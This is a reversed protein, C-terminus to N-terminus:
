AVNAEEGPGPGPGADPPAGEGPGGAGPEGPPLAGASAGAQDFEQVAKGPEGLGGSQVIAKLHDMEHLMLRQQVLNPLRLFQKTKRFATHTSLHIMDDDGSNRTVQQWGESRILMENEWKARRYDLGRESSFGTIGLQEMFDEYQGTDTLLNPFLGMNLADILMQQAGAKSRPQYSAAEVRVRTNSKLDSGKFDAIEIATGDETEFSIAREDSYYAQVLELKLSEHREIFRQFRKSIPEFLGEAEEGLRNLAVGATVGPPANGMIVNKVGSIDEMDQAYGARRQVMQAPMPMGPERRPQHPYKYKIVTGPKNRFAGDAVEAEEPVLWVPNVNTADNLQQFQEIKNIQDQPSLLDEVMGRFWFRGPVRYYGVHDIHFRTKLPLDGIYLPMGDMEVLFLGNSYEQTPAFQLQNVIAYGELYFPDVTRVVGHIGASLLSVLRHTYLDSTLIGGKEPIFDAKDPYLQRLLQTSFLSSEMIWPATGAKLQRCALPVTISLPSVVESWVDGQPTVDFLVEGTTPDREEIYRRTLVPQGDPGIIPQGSAGILPEESAVYRPTKSASRTTTDIFAKKFANGTTILWTAIEDYQDDEDNTSWLHKQIQEALEAADLDTESRSNPEVYCTPRNRTFFDVARQVKNQIQNIVPLPVWDEVKKPQWIRTASLYKIHQIGACYLICKSWLPEFTELTVQRVRRPEDMLKLVRIEDPTPIYPQQRKSKDDIADAVTKAFSKAGDVVGGVLRALLGPGQNTTDM